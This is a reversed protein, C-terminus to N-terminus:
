LRSSHLELVTLFTVSSYNPLMKLLVQATKLLEKYLRVMLIFFQDMKVNSTLVVWSNEIFSILEM